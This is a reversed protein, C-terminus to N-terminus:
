CSDGGREFIFTRSSGQYCSLPLTDRGTHRVNHNTPSAHMDPNHKLHTHTHTHAHWIICANCSKASKCGCLYWMGCAVRSWLKVWVRVCATARKDDEVCDVILSIYYIVSTLTPKKCCFWVRFSFPELIMMMMMKTRGSEQMVFTM